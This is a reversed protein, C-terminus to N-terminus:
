RPKPRRLAVFTAQTKTTNPTVATNTNTVTRAGGDGVRGPVAALMMCNTV